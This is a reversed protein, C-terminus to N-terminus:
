QSDVARAEAASRRMTELADIFREASAQDHTYVHVLAVHTVSRITVAFVDRKKSLLVDGIQTYYIAASSPGLVHNLVVRFKEDTVEVQAAAPQQDLTEYIVKQATRASDLPRGAYPIYSRCSGSAISAVLAILLGGHQHLRTAM